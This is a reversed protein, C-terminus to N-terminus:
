FNNRLKFFDLTVNMWTCRVACFRTRRGSITYIGWSSVSTGSCSTVHIPSFTDQLWHVGHIRFIVGCIWLFALHQVDNRFIVNSPMRPLNLLAETQCNLQGSFAGLIVLTNRCVNLLLRWIHSTGHDKQFQKFGNSDTFAMFSHIHTSHFSIYSEGRLTRELRILPGMDHCSCVSWVMVFDEGIQENGQQLTPDM